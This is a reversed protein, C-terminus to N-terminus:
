DELGRFRFATVSRDRLDGVYPEEYVRRRGAAAHLLMTKGKDTTLIGCHCPYLSDRMLVVDGHGADALNIEDLAERFHSVFLTGNPERQYDTTDHSHLGLDHGIVVILGACDLGRVRSRGQHRWPVGLYSRAQAVVQARTTM